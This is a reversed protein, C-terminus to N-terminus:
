VKTKTETKRRRYLVVAAVSVALAIAISSIVLSSFEITDTVSSPSRSPSPTLLPPPSAITSPTPTQTPALTPTLVPTTTVTLTPTPTPMPTSTPIPIPTPTPYLTSQVIITQNAEVDNFTYTGSTEGASLTIPSGNVLEQTISYGSNASFNFSQSNGADVMISGSPSIVSNSDSSATILYQIPITSIAITHNAIVNTFTYNGMIPVPTGDVLVQAISYGSNASYTVTQNSGYNVVISGSQSLTCGSDGSAMITYNAPSETGLYIRTNSLQSILVANIITNWDPSFTLQWIGSSPLTYSILSTGFTFSFNGPNMVSITLQDSTLNINSIGGDIINNIDEYRVDALPVAVSGTVPITALYMMLCAGDATAEGSPSSDSTISFLGSNYLNSQELLEWAPAGAPNSGNVLEQVESQMITTMNAYLGLMAAWSMITNDLRTQPNGASGNVGTAHVTVFQEWQPSNWGNALWRTQMDAVLNNMNTTTSNYYYLQWMISNMGGAECEFAIWNLAYQYFSGGSYSQTNWLNSNTWNWWYEAQIMGDSIGAEWFQLFMDITEASEDYYRPGYSIGSAVTTNSIWLAPKGLNTIATKFSNYATTINWKGTDYNLTKAFAYANVLYRNYVLFDPSGSSSDTFPLGNQLMPAADLAAEITTQNIQVQFKGMVYYWYFIQQWNATPNGSLGDVLTQLQTINTQGLAIGDYCTQISQLWGGNATVNNVLNQIYSAAGTSYNVTTAGDAHVSPVSVLTLTPVIVALVILFFLIFGPIRPKQM